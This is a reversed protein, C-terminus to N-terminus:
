GGLLSEIDPKKYNVGKLIKGAKGGVVDGKIVFVGEKVRVYSVNSYRHDDSYAKVSAVADELTYCFKSMNSDNIEKVVEDADFGLRHIMGAATVILDACADLVEVLDEEDFADTLEKYEESIFSLQSLIDKHTLSREEKTYGGIENFEAIRELETSM